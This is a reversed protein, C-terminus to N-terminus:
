SVLRQSYFTIKMMALHNKGISVFAKDINQAGLKLTVKVLSFDGNVVAKVLIEDLTSQLRKSLYQAGNILELFLAKEKESLISSKVIIKISEVLEILSEDGVQDITVNHGNKALQLASSFVLSQIQARESEPNEM